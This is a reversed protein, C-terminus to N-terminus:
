RPRRWTSVSLPPFRSALWRTYRGNGCGVDVVPLAPDLYGSIYPLYEGRETPTKATGCCM